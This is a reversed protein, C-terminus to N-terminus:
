PAARSDPEQDVLSRLGVQTEVDAEALLSRAADVDPNLFRESRTRTTDAEKAQAFDFAAPHSRLTVLRSEQRELTDDGNCRRSM